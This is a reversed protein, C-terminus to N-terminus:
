ETVERGGTVIRGRATMTGCFGTDGGGAVETEGITRGFTSIQAEGSLTGSPPRVEIKQFVCPTVEQVMVLETPFKKSFVSEPPAAVTGIVPRVVNVIEHRVDLPLEAASSTSTFRAM